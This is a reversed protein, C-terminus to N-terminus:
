DAVNFTVLVRGERAAWILQAEDEEGLRGAEPASLADFGAARLQSAVARHIDEDTFFRVPTM